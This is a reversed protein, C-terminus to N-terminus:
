SADMYLLCGCATCFEPKSLLLNNQMNITVSRGCAQCVGGEVEALGEAGKSRILRRYDQKFDAPIQKEATALETELRDIDGQVAAAETAIKDRFGALETKAEEVTKVAEGVKVELEDVKEMAELIEDALVSGAMESAAIQEQLAHFEKNSSCGNLKVQLDAIKGEGTKLDLQKKDILLKTEKVSERVAALDSELNRVGSERAKVQRPGRDLRDRLDTLQSHISHIERLAAASVPM